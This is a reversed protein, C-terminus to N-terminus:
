SARATDPTETATLTGKISLTLPEPGEVRSADLLADLDARRIVIRRGVKSYPLRRERLMSRMTTMSIRLWTAAERPTLNPVNPTDTTM